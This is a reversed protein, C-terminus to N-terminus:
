YNTMSFNATQNLTGQAISSNIINFLFEPKYREFIAIWHKTGLKPCSLSIQLPTLVLRGCRCINSLCQTREDGM